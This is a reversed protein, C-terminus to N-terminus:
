LDVRNIYTQSYLKKRSFKGIVFNKRDKTSRLEELEIDVDLDDSFPARRLRRRDENDEADYDARRIETKEAEDSRRSKKTAGTGIGKSRLKVLKEERKRRLEELQAERELEEQKKRKISSFHSM